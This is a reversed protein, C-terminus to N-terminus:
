TRRLVNDIAKLDDTALIEIEGPLRHYIEFQRRVTEFVDGYVNVAAILVVVFVFCRLFMRGGHQYHMPVSNYEMQGCFHLTHYQEHFNGFERKVISM